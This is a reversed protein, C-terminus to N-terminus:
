NSKETIVFYKDYYSNIDYEEAPFISVADPRVIYVVAKGTNEEVIEPTVDEYHYKESYPLQVKGDQVNSIGQYYHADIEHCYMTLIEGVMNVGEGQPDPTIYYYDCEIKKADNLANIYPEYYYTRSIDGWNGFYTVAFLIGLMGYGAAIPVALLSWKNICWAIGIAAVVLIPYFIINIRNITVERTVIGVWLSMVIWMLLVFYAAKKTDDAKKKLRVIVAALGIVFFVTTIYYVPGFKVITNTVSKDGAGWVTSFCCGINKWLQQWSFNTLLIDNARFSRPFYPLTFVSTEITQLKFMNIFMIIFEPLAVVLYLVVCIFMERWLISKQKLLYIAVILLFLPVSYNAVGYCYSCLGFFIMSLYLMWHKKLGALLFCVAILFVHPFLNCDFSWRSQMYHWPCITGLLLAIVAAERGKVQRACFYLALLGISSAFLMPLRISVTSFGLIKIFPVMCYSLLVSMQAGGWATFYLPYRMGYRDTGYDALAKADVAAMWILAVIVFEIKPNKLAQRFKEM